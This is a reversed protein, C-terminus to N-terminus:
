LIILVGVLTAAFIGKFYLFDSLTPIAQHIRVGTATQIYAFLIAIVLFLMSLTFMIYGIVRLQDRIPNKSFKLVYKFQKHNEGIFSRLCQFIALTIFLFIVVAVKDLPLNKCVWLVGALIFVLGVVQLKNPVRNYFLWGIVVSVIATFMQLLEGEVPTVQSFLGFSVIFGFILAIGYGWTQSSRLVNLSNKGPGAYLLLALSCSLFMTCVYVVPNIQLVQSSYSALISGASWVVFVNFFAFFWDVLNRSHM